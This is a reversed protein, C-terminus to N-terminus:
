CPPNIPEKAEIPAELGPMFEPVVGSVVNSYVTGGTPTCAYIRYYYRDGPPLKGDAYRDYQPPKDQPRLEGPRKAAIAKWPGDQTTSREVVWYTVEWDPDEWWLSISNNDYHTDIATLEVVQVTSVIVQTTPRNPDSEEIGVQTEPAATTATPTAGACAALTLAAVGVVVIALVRM